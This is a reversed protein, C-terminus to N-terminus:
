NIIETGELTFYFKTGKGSGESTFWISGGHVEVIRKVLALGIGTGEESNNLKEFLGFIKNHHRPDIGSGNDRVFMVIENNRLEDAFAGIEIVPDPQDGMFKAANDLLNQYLQILRQSHGFLNVQLGSFIIKIKRNEIRGAVLDIAAQAITRMPTKTKPKEKRGVRSLELLEDLLSGMKDAANQIYSIDKNQREVDNNEISEKLFSTFSKITVLPSRLDHSVTYIFRTLEENKQRIEMEIKKKESIDEVTRITKIHKGNIDRVASASVHVWLLSGDGKIYHKEADFMNLEGSQLKLNMEISHPLDEPATIEHVTRRLLDERKYGLVDCIRNNVAIFRDHTDVEAIGIAANEFIVQMRQQNEKLAEEFRKRESIDEITGISNVHKGQSDRVASVTVHVWIPSGDPKLYRKEYDFFDFDGRHLRTNMENSMARDEVATIESVSRGMLGERTYGLIECTRDNMSIVRDDSDVEIIGIAVNNFMGQLRQENKRLIEETKKRDTIDSMSIVGGAHNGSVILPAASM